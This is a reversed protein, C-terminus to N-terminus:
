TTDGLLPTRETAESSRTSESGNTESAVVDETSSPTPVHTPQLPQTVDAKCVPCQFASSRTMLGYGPSLVSRNEGM